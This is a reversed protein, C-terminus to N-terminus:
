IIFHRGLFSDLFSWTDFDLREIKSVCVVGFMMGFCLEEVIV